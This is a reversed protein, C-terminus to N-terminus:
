FPKLSLPRPDPGEEGLAEPGEGAGGNVGSGQALGKQVQLPGEEEHHHPLEVAALGAQHVGKQALVEEGLAGGGGRVPDLKQLVPLLPPLFPFAEKPEALGM